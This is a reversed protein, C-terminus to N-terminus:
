ASPVAGIEVLYAVCQRLFDVRGDVDLGGVATGEVEFTYPGTFGLDGLIRFVAPFDVVGTGLPPFYGSRFGGDTDKLHVSGVLDAVKRLETVTDAGENYYYINATDLNFRMGPHDVATLTERAVAGNTGFPPHTEMCVSVGHEHAYVATERLRAISVDRPVADGAKASVFIKPVAISSAGDIVRRFALTTEETELNLQTALTAIAVGAADAKSKLAAYDGDGPVPVEGYYIGAEPLREFAAEVGGFVGTRCSVINPM